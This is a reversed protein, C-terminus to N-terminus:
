TAQTAPELEEEPKSGQLGQGNPVYVVLACVVRHVDHAAPNEVLKVPPIAEEFQVCIHGRPCFEDLPRM